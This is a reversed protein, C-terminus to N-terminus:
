RSRGCRLCELDLMGAFDPVRKLETYDGEVIM